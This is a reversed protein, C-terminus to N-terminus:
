KFVPKNSNAKLNPETKAESKGAKKRKLDRERLVMLKKYLTPNSVKVDALFEIIQAETIKSPDKPYLPRVAGYSLTGAFLCVLTALSTMKSIMKEGNDM